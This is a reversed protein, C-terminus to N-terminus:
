GVKKMEEVSRKAIEAGKLSLDYALELAFLENDAHPKMATWLRIDYVKLGIFRMTAEGRKTLAKTEAFDTKVADPLAYADRGALLAMSLSVFVIVAHLRNM